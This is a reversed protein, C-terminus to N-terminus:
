KLMEKKLLQVKSQITRKSVESKVKVDLDFMLTELEFVLERVTEFERIPKDEIIALQCRFWEDMTDYQKQYAVICQNLTGSKFKFSEKVKNNVYNDNIKLYDLGSHSPVEWFKGRSNKSGTPAMKFGYKNGIETLMWLSHPNFRCHFSTNSLDHQAIPFIYKKYKDPITPAKFIKLEVDEWIMETKFVKNWGDSFKRYAFEDDLTYFYGEEDRKSLLKFNTTDWKSVEMDLDNIDHHYHSITTESVQRQIGEPLTKFELENTTTKFEKGDLRYLTGPQLNLAVCTDEETQRISLTTM